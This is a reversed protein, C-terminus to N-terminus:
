MELGALKWSIVGDRKFIFKVPEESTGKKKVRVAFQNLSEYSMSTEIDSEDSSKKGSSKDPKESQPKEGKMMTALSEPTVFTDVMPAVFASALAAGAANFPNGKNEAAMKANICAKVSERLEPYDVYESLTEADKNDAAKKMNYVSLYPTFYFGVGIVALVILGAIVKKNKNMMIGKRFSTKRQYYHTYNPSKWFLIYWTRNTTGGKPPM